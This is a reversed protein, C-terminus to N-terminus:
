KIKNQNIDKQLRSFSNNRISTNFLEPFTQILYGIDYLGGKIKIKSIIQISVFM